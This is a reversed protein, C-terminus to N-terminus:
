GSPTAPSSMGSSDRIMKTQSAYWAIVVSRGYRRLRLWRSATRLSASPAPLWNSEKDAGPSEHQIWIDLSGDSGLRLGKTRDGLSYRGIPNDVLFGGPMGYMTISWFAHVPPLQGREFHLRYRRSGDLGRGAGDVAATFNHAESPDNAALFHRAVFARYPYDDGFRGTHAAFALWGNAAPRKSPLKPIMRLGAEVARRLGRATPEDLEAAVFSQSPGVHIQSFLGMLAAERPPPPNDRLV